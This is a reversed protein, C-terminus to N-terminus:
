GSALSNTLGVVTIWHCRRPTRMREAERRYRNPLGTLDGFAGICAGNWSCHGLLSWKWAPRGLLQSWLVIGRGAGHLNEM